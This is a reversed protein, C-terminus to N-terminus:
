LLLLYSLQAVSNPFICFYQELCFIKIQNNINQWWNLLNFFFFITKVDETMFSLSLFISLNVIVMKVRTYAASTKVIVSNPICSICLYFVIKFIEFHFIHRIEVTKASSNNYHTKFWNVNGTFSTTKWLFWENYYNFCYYYIINVIILM